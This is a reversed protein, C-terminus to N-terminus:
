MDQIFEVHKLLCFFCQMFTVHKRPQHVKKHLKCHHRLILTRCPKLLKRCM